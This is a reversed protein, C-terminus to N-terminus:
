SLTIGIADVAAQAASVGSERDTAPSDGGDAVDAHIHTHEIDGAGISFDTVNHSDETIVRGGGFKSVDQTGYRIFDHGAKGATDVADYDFLQKSDGRKRDGQKRDGRKRDGQARKATM